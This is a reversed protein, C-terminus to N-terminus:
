KKVSLKDGFIPRLINELNRIDEHISSKTWGMEKAALFWKHKEKTTTIHFLTAGIRSRIEIKQIEGNPIAYNNEDAKLISEPSGEALAEGKERAEKASETYRLAGVLGGTMFSGKTRVLILRDSTVLLTEFIRKMFSQRELPQTGLIKELKAM